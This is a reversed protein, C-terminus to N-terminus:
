AQQRVLLGQMRDLDKALELMEESPIQRLVANTQVDVVKVVTRGSDQDISFQLSDAVAPKIAKRLEELSKQLEGQSVPTSSTQSIAQDLAATPRSQTVVTSAATFAAVAAGGASGTAAHQMAVSAAGSLAPAQIAM